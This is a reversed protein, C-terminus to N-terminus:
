PAKAVSIRLCIALMAGSYDVNRESWETESVTVSARRYGMLPVLVLRRGLPLDLSFYGELYPGTGRIDETYTGLFLNNYYTYTGAVSIAGGSVGVRLVPSLAVDLSLYLVNAPLDYEVLFTTQQYQRTASSGAFLRRYHVALRWLANFDLGADAGIAFGYSVPSLGEPFQDRLEDLEANIDEM